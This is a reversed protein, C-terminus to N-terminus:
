SATVRQAGPGLWVVTGAATPIPPVGPTLSVTVPVYPATAGPSYYLTSVLADWILRGGTDTGILVPPDGADGQLHLLKSAAARLSLGGDSAVTVDKLWPFLKLCISRLSDLPAEDASM